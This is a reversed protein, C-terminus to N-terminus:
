ESEHHLIARTASLLSRFFLLYFPLHATVAFEPYIDCMDGPHVLVLQLRPFALGRACQYFRILVARLLLAKTNM